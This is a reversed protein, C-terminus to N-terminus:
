RRHSYMMGGHLSGTVRQLPEFNSGTEEPVRSTTPLFERLQRSHMMGGHLAGHGRELAGQTSPTPFKLSVVLLAVFFVASGILIKKM